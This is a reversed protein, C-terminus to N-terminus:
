IELQAEGRCGGLLVAQKSPGTTDSHDSAKQAVPDGQSVAAGGHNKVHDLAWLTRKPGSGSGGAATEEGVTPVGVRLGITSGTAIEVGWDLSVSAFWTNRAM